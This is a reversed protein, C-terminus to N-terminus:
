FARLQASANGAMVPASSQVANSASSPTSSTRMGATAVAQGGVQSTLLQNISAVQDLQNLSIMQGVMETSSMPQTPDQNQLEQALLSMFTAGLSNVSTASTASASSGTTGSTGQSSTARPKASLLPSLSGAGQLSSIGSVASM